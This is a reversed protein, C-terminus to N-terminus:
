KAGQRRRSSRKRNRAIAAHSPLSPFPTLRLAFIFRLAFLFRVEIEALIDRKALDDYAAFIDLAEEIKAEVKRRSEVTKLDHTGTVVEAASRSLGDLATLEILKRDADTSALRQLARLRQKSILRPAASLENHQGEMARLMPGLRAYDVGDLKTTVM